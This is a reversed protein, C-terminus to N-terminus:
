AGGPRLERRLSADWFGYTASLPATSELPALPACLALFAAVVAQVRVRPGYSGAIAALGAAMAGDVMAVSDDQYLSGIGAM